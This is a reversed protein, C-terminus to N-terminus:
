LAVMGGCGHCRGDEDIADSGCSGCKPPYDM